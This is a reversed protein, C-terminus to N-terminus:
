SARRGEGSLRFFIDSLQRMARFVRTKVVAADCDLIEGIEEYKLNQWRSLVLLERKDAPLRRLARRLTAVDSSRLLRTEPSVQPDAPEWERDSSEDFLPAEPRAKRLHDVHVNRAIQYIWPTFRAGRQFTDRFKLMRFFVEQTLDEALPGPVPLHAFFRFLARHHREFLPALQEVEGAKVREMLQDDNDLL